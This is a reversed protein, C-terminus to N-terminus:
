EEAVHFRGRESGPHDAVLHCVPVGALPMVGSHTEEGVVAIRHSFGNTGNRIRGGAHRGRGAEEPIGGQLAVDDGEVAPIVIVDGIGEKVKRPDRLFHRAPANEAARLKSLAM